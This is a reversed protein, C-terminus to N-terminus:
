VNVDASFEEASWRKSRWWRLVQFTAPGMLEITPIVSRQNEVGTSRLLRSHGTATEQRVGRALAHSPAADKYGSLELRVIAPRLVQVYASGFM